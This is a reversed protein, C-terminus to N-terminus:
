FWEVPIPLALQGQNSLFQCVPIGQLRARFMALEELRQEVQPM